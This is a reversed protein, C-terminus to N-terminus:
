SIVPTLLNHLEQMATNMVLVEPDETSPVMAPPDLAVTQVAAASVKISFDKNVIENGWSTPVVIQNFLEVATHDKTLPVQNYFIITNGSEYYNVWGADAAATSTRLAEIIASMDLGKDVTTAFEVKVAVYCDLSNEGLNVGVRKGITAGPLVNTYQVGGDATGKPDILWGENEHGQPVYGEDVLEIAVKGATFVNEKPATTTTFYALTGGVAIIAVLCLSLALVLINKTKM